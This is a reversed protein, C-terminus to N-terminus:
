LNGAVSVSVVLSSGDSVAPPLFFLCTRITGTLKFVCCKLDFFPVADSGMCRTTRKATGGGAWAAPM